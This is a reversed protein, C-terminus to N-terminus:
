EIKAWVKDSYANCNGMHGGYTNEVEVSALCTYGSQSLDSSSVQIDNSSAGIASVCVQYWPSIPQYPSSNDIFQHANTDADLYFLTDYTGSCATTLTYNRHRLCLSYSYLGSTDIEAHSDSIYELGFIKTYGVNCSVSNRYSAIMNGVITSVLNKMERFVGNQSYLIIEKAGSSMGTTCFNLDIETLNNGRITGTLDCDVGEIVIRSYDFTLPSISKVYLTNADYFDMIIHNKQVVGYEAIGEETYNIAWMYIFTGVVALVLLLLLSVVVESLGKRNRLIFKNKM